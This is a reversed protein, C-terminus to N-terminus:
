WGKVPILEDILEADTKKERGTEKIPTGDARRVQHPRVSLDDGPPDEDQQEQNKGDNIRFGEAVLEEADAKLQKEDDGHLRKALARARDATIGPIALAVDLKKQGQILKQADALIKEQEKREREAAQEKTEHERQVTSLTEKTNALESEKDAVTEQLKEKDSLLGHLFKKIRGADIEAPTELKKGDKDKEWPALWDEFKEIAM